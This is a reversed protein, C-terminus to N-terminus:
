IGIQMYTCMCVHSREEDLYIYWKFCVCMARENEFAMSKYKIDLVANKGPSGAIVPIRYLAVKGLSDM